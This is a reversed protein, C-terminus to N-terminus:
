QKTKQTHKQKYLSSEVKLVKSQFGPFSLSFQLEIAVFKAQEGVVQKEFCQWTADLWRQVEVCGKACRVNLTCAERMVSTLLDIVNALNVIRLEMDVLQDGGCGDAGAARFDTNIDRVLGAGKAFHTSRERDDVNDSALVGEWKKAGASRRFRLSRESDPSAGSSGDRDAVNEWLGSREEELNVIRSEM